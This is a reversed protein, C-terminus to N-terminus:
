MPPVYFIRHLLSYYYCATTHLMCYNINYYYFSICYSSSYCLTYQQQQTRPPVHYYPMYKEWRTLVTARKASISFHLRFLCGGVGPGVGTVFLISSGAGRGTKFRAAVGAGVGAGVVGAAVGTGVGAGLGAGVGASAHSSRPKCSTCGESSHM